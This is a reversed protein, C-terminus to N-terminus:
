AYLASLIHTSTQFCLQQQRSDALSWLCLVPPRRECSTHGQLGGQPASSSGVGVHVPPVLYCLAEWKGLVTAANEM